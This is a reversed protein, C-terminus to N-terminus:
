HLFSAFSVCFCFWGRGEKNGKESRIKGNKGRRLNFGLDDRVKKELLDRFSLDM